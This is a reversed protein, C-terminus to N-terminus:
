VVYPSGKDGIEFLELLLCGRERGLFRASKIKASINDFRAYPTKRLTDRKKM